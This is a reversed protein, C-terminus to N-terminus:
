NLNFSFIWIQVNKSNDGQDTVGNGGIDKRGFDIINKTRSNGYFYFM